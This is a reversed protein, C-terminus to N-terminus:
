INSSKSKGLIPGVALFLIATSEEVFGMSYTTKMGWISIVSILIVKAKFSNLSLIYKAFYIFIFLYLLCGMLGYDVLIELWDNHAMRTTHHFMGQFGYGFLLNIMNDSNYWLNWANAYIVDRGSSDGEKISLMRRLLYENEFFLDIAWITIATFVAVSTLIKFVSKKDDKFFFYIYLIVPIVAALINGRKAGYILFFLCVCFLVISIMRNKVLFLLPLVMLFVVSGNNTVSEDDGILYRALILEKVHYFYFIGAITIIISIIMMFKDTLVKEAGLFSYLLLALMAFLVNGIFSTSPADLWLYSIFFYVLNFITFILVSKEFGLLKYKKYSQGICYLCLLVFVIRWLVPQFPFIFYLLNGILCLISLNRVILYKNTVTM